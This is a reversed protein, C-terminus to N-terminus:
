EYKPNTGAKGPFARRNKNCDSAVYYMFLTNNERYKHIIFVIVIGMLM